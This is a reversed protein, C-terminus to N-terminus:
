YEFKERVMEESWKWLKWASEGDRAWGLPEGVRCDILYEGKGELGEDLAAVILVGAGEEATKMLDRYQVRLGERVEKGLERGLGTTGITGPDLCVVEGGRRAVELGFLINATKSRGYALFPDYAQEGKFWPDTLNIDSYTHASSAVVVLRHRAPLTPRHM